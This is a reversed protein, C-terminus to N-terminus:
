SKYFETRIKVLLEHMFNKDVKDPLNSNDFLKDIEKIEETSKALVEELVVDGRRIAMLEDINPRRVIIGKGEAIERSMDLLRKLHLINKSDYQQGHQKNTVYRNENREKLWIQYEKYEKAHQSYGDENYYVIYEVKEGKPVSSLRIKNSDELEIGKYGFGFPKGQKKLKKKYTEREKESYFEDFCKVANWDYFLAYMDRAHPIAALGCFKQKWQQFKLIKKLPISKYGEIVYCFDMPTKRTVKAAEWNQKKNLGTAKIVQSKGYGAFSKKCQKTIFKEKHELIFDYAPHKYLICEEPYEGIFEIITPNNVALLELFRKIEYGVFDKNEDIQQIYNLGYIDEKPLVYIFKRDIDSEPTATGYAQSGCIAEFLILNNEKLFQYNM